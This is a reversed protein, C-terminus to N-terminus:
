KGVIDTRIGSEHVQYYPGGKANLPGSVNINLGELGLNENQAMIYKSHEFDDEESTKIPQKELKERHIASLINHITNEKM